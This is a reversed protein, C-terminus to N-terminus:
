ALADALIGDLLSEDAAGFITQVEGDPLVIAIAPQTPVGFRQFM